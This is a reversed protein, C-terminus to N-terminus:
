SYAPRRRDVGHRHIVRDTRRRRGQARHHRCTGSISPSPEGIFVLAPAALPAECDARALLFWALIVPAYLAVIIGDDLASHMADLLLRTPNWKM